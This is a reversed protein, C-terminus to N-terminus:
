MELKSWVHALNILYLLSRSWREWQNFEGQPHAFRNRITNLTLLTPIVRTPDNPTNYILKEDGIRKVLTSFSTRSNEDGVIRSLRERVLEHSDNVFEIPRSLPHYKSIWDLFSPEEGSAFCAVLILAREVLELEKQRTLDLHEPLVEIPETQISQAPSPELKLVTQHTEAQTDRLEDLARDHNAGVERLSELLARIQELEGYIKGQGEGIGGLSRIEELLQAEFEDEGPEDIPPKIGAPRKTKPRRATFTDADKQFEAVLADYTAPDKPYVWVKREGDWQREPIRKARDRNEPHIRVLFHTEDETVEIPGLKGPNVNVPMSM